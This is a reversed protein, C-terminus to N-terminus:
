GPETGSTSPLAQRRQATLSNGLNEECWKQLDCNRVTELAKIIHDQTLQGVSAAMGLIMKTFGGRSHQGQMRKGKGILSEIVETSAPLSEGPKLGQSQQRVFEELAKAVRRGASTKTISALERSLDDAAEAHYGEKRAYSLVHDKVRHIDNWDVLAKRFDRVWGLKEDLRTLDQDPPRTEKPTDLLTLMKDGWAMLTGLNMYRGKVKQTPPALHALETQKIRPQTQGCQKTFADWREDADLEHKLVIAAQHAIDHLARTAPHTELFKQVGCTIDSGHDNLIAAPVGVLERANELQQFVIEGNSQEVPELTIVSLDEHKLPRDLKKWVSIRIGVILLCKFPGLQITHDGLFVWDEAREKPRTLEYLGLRLLWSQTTNPAPIDHFSPLFDQLLEIVASCARFSVAGKLFM